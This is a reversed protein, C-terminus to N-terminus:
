KRVRHLAGDAVMLKTVTAQARRKPDDTVVQVGRGCTLTRLAGLDWSCPAYPLLLSLGTNLIM